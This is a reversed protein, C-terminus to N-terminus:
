LRSNIAYNKLEAAFKSRNRNSLANRYKPILKQITEIPASIGLEDSVMNVTVSSFVESRLAKSGGRGKSVALVSYLAVFCQFPQKSIEWITKIQFVDLDFQNKDLSIDRPKFDLLQFVKSYEFHNFDRIFENAKDYYRYENKLKYNRYAKSNKLMIRLRNKESMYAKSESVSM